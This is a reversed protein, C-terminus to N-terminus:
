RANTYRNGVVVDGMVDNHIVKVAGQDLQIRGPLLGQRGQGEPPHVKIQPICKRGIQQDVFVIEVIDLHLTEDIDIGTARAVCKSFVVFCQTMNEVRGDGRYVAM